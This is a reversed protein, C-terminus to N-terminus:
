MGAFHNLSDRCDYESITDFIMGRPGQPSRAKATFLARRKRQRARRRAIDTGHCRTTQVDGRLDGFRVGKRRFSRVEFTKVGLLALGDLPQIPRNENQRPCAGALRPHQGRADRWMRQVRRARGFSIRATVKVLLAARSIFSRTPWITPPAMSPMGQSPVNWEMPMRMKRRWASSTAERGIEGDEIHVVLDPEMLCIMWASRSSSFRQGARCSAPSM